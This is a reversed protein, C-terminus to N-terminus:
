VSDCHFPGLRSHSSDVLDTVENLTSLDDLLISKAISRVMNKTDPKVIYEAPSKGDIRALMLCGLQKVTDKEVTDKEVSAHPIKSNYGEWFSFFAEVYQEKIPANHIAKLLLHNLLFALDFVPNGYHVVEFDLLFIDKGTVIINKPSYDGHVLATKVDLMRQAECNIIEALDPHAKATTWHYPDIRLQVFPTDDIFRERIAAAGTTAMHVMGLVAGAKWAVDTDVRGALLQEKWNAGGAPACSMVFLFNDADEYRITPLIGAPLIAGLTDICARERLIRGQDAFWDEAVRLKPLSQKVVMCDDQTSVKVLTNSVGWGLSQVSTVDNPRILGRFSLYDVVNSVDINYNM